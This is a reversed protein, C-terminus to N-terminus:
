AAVFVGVLEKRYTVNSVSMSKNGMILSYHESNYSKPCKGVPNLVIIHFFFFNIIIKINQFIVICDSEHHKTCITTWFDRIEPNPIM